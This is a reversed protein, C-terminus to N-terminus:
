GLGVVLSGYKEKTFYPPIPEVLQRLPDQHLIQAVGAVHLQTLSIYPTTISQHSAEVLFSSNGTTCPPLTPVVPHPSIVSLIPTPGNCLKQQAILSNILLYPFLNPVDSAQTSVIFIRRAIKTTVVALSGHLPIWWLLLIPGCLGRLFLAGFLHKVGICSRARPSRSMRIM